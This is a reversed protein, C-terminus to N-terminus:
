HAGHQRAQQPGALGGRRGAAALRTRTQGPAQRAHDLTGAQLATPIALAGPPLCVSGCGAAMNAHWGLGSRHFSGDGGSRPDDHVAM